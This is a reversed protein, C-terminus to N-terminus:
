NERRARQLTSALGMREEGSRVRLFGDSGVTRWKGM